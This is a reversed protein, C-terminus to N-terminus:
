VRLSNRSPVADGDAGPQDRGGHRGSMAKAMRNSWNVMVADHGILRFKGSQSYTLRARSVCIM